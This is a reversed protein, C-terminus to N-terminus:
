SRLFPAFPPIQDMLDIRIGDTAMSHFNPIAAHLYWRSKANSGFDILVRVEFKLTRECQAGNDKVM